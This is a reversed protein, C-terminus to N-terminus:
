QPERIAPRRSVLPSPGPRLRGRRRKPKRFDDTRLTKWVNWYGILGGAIAGVAAISALAGGVTCVRQIRSLLRVPAPKDPEQQPVDSDAM